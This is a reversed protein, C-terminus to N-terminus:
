HLLKLVSASNTMFMKQAYMALQNQTDASRLQMIAKAMDTDSMNSDAGTLNEESVTYNASAFSLNQQAAGIDTAGDLAKKLADDITDLAKALGKETDVSSLDITSNGKSDALGLAEATMNGLSVNRYGDVGAVAVNKDSNLLDMGNYQISANDNITQLSQNISNSITTLDSPSNTGNAAKIVQERISTLANITSSVGGAAVSLMANANQTNQNSQALAGIQARTRRSIAYESAGYQATPFKSGSAIQKLVTNYNSKTTNIQNLFGVGGIAM